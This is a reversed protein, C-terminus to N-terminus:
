VQIDDAWRDDARPVQSSDGMRAPIQESAAQSQHYDYTRLDCGAEQLVQLIHPVVLRGVPKPETKVDPIEDQLCLYRFCDFSTVSGLFCEFVIVGTHLVCPDPSPPSIM